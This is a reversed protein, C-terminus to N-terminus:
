DVGQLRPIRKEDQDWAGKLFDTITDGFLIWGAVLAGIGLAIAPIILNLGGTAATIAPVLLWLAAAALGLGTVVVGALIAGFVKMRAESETIWTLLDAGKTFGSM